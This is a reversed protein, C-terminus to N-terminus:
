IAPFITDALQMVVWSAILYAVGVKIVQRRKLEDFFERMPANYPFGRQTHRYVPPYLCKM